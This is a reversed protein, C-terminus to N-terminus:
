KSVTPTPTVAKNILTRVQNISYRLDTLRKKYTSLKTRTNTVPDSAKLVLIENVTAKTDATIRNLKTIATQDSTKALLIESIELLKDAYVVLSIKPYLFNFTQNLTKIQSQFERLKQLDTENQISIKLSETQTILAKVEATLADKQDQTLKKSNFIQNSLRNLTNLRADIEKGLSLKRNNIRQEEIANQKQERTEITNGTRTQTGERVTETEQNSEQSQVVRRPNTDLRASIPTVTQSFVVSVAILTSFFLKTNKM